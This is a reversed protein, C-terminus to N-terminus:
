QGVFKASGLPSKAGGGPRFETLKAGGLRVFRCGAFSKRPRAPAFNASNRVVLFFFFSESTCFDPVPRAVVAAITARLTIHRHV